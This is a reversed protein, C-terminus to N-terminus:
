AAKPVSPWAASSDAALRQCESMTFTRGAPLLLNQKRTFLRLTQILSHLEPKWDNCHIGTLTDKQFLGSLQRVRRWRNGKDQLIAMLERRLVWYKLGVRYDWQPATDGTAALECAKEVFDIGARLSLELHGWIRPNIELLKYSGDREDQKVEVDCPGHYKLFELIPQCYRLLEPNQTTIGKVTFGGSVPYTTLRAVTMAARTEGHRCLFLGDHVKGPIYEQVLPRRYDEVESCPSDYNSIDRYADALETRNAAYRLGVGGASRRAKLVVPFCIEQDLLAELSEYQYTRPVKFGHAALLSHLKAKDHVREFLSWEPSVVKTYRSLEDKMMAFWAAMRQDFPMIADYSGNRVVQLLRDRFPTPQLIPHPLNFQKTLYKSPLWRAIRFESPSMTVASDIAHGKPCVSRAASVIMGTYGGCFLLKM